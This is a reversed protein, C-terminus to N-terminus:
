KYEFVGDAASGSSRLGMYRGWANVKDGETADGGLRRAAM